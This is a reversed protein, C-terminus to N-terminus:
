KIPYGKNDSTKPATNLKLFEGTSSDMIKIEGNYQAVLVERGDPTFEIATFYKGGEIKSTDEKDYCEFNNIPNNEKKPYLAEKYNWLQVFGEGGAIALIPETPHVAIGIVGSRLGSMLTRGRKQNSKIEEFLSSKLSCVCGSDDTVLFDACAFVEDNPDTAGGDYGIPRAMKAAIPTKSSFSISKITSLYLKDFWSM